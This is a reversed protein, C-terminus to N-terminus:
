DNRRKMGQTGGKGPSRKERSGERGGERGREMRGERRVGGGEKGGGRGEKWKNENM